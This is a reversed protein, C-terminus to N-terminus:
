RRRRTKKRKTKKRKTKKRKIKKRKYKIRKTKNKKSYKIISGKGGNYKTIYHNQPRDHVGGGSAQPPRYPFRYLVNYTRDAHSLGWAEADGMDSIKLDRIKKYIDKNLTDHYLLRRENELEQAEHMSRVYSIGCINIGVEKYRAHDNIYAVTFTTGTPFLLEKENEFMSISKNYKWTDSEGLWVSMKELEKNYNLVKLVYGVRGDPSPYRNLFSLAIGIDTTFSRISPFACLKHQATAGELDINFSRCVIYSLGSYIGYGPPESIRPKPAEFIAYNMLFLLRSDQNHLWQGRPYGFLVKNISECTYCYLSFILLNQLPNPRTGTNFTLQKSDYNAKIQDGTGAGIYKDMWQIINTNQGDINEDYGSKMGDVVIDPESLTFPPEPNIGGGMKGSNIRQPSINDILIPQNFKQWILPEKSYQDKGGKYINM